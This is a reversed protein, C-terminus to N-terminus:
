GYGELTQIFNIMIEKISLYRKADSCGQLSESVVDYLRHTTADWLTEVSARSRFGETTSVIAHEVIFFGAIDQLYSEFGSNDKDHFSFPTALILNAQLRRNEDYHRKFQNKVGLVDHIHLCQYLPKLNVKVYENNMVDVEEDLMFKSKSTSAQRRLVHMSSGMMGDDQVRKLTNDMAIHGVIKQDKRIHVMWDKVNDLVAKQVRQRVSPLYNLVRQAFTYRVLSPM